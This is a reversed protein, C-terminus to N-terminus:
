EIGEHSLILEGAQPFSPDSLIFLQIANYPDLATIAQKYLHIDAGGVVQGAMIAIAPPNPGFNVIPDPTGPPNQPDLFIRDGGDLVINSALIELANTPTGISQNM